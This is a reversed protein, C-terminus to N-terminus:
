PSFGSWARDLAAGAVWEVTARDLAVGRVRFRATHDDAPNVLVDLVQADPRCDVLVLADLHSVEVGVGTTAPRVTAASWELFPEGAPRGARKRLASEGLRQVATYGAKFIAEFQRVCARSPDGTAADPTMNVFLVELRRDGARSVRGAVLSLAVFVLLAISRRSM